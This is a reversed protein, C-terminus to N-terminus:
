KGTLLHHHHHPPPPPFAGIAKSTWHLCYCFYVPTVHLYVTICKCVFTALSFIPLVQQFRNRTYEITKWGILKLFICGCVLKPIAEAGAVDLKSDISSPLLLCSENALICPGQQPVVKRPGTSRWSSTHHNTDPDGQRPWGGSRGSSWVTRAGVGNWCPCMWTSISPLGPCYRPYGCGQRRGCWPLCQGRLLSKARTIAFWWAPRPSGRSRCSLQM